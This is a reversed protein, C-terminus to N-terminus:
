KQIENRLIEIENESLHKLRKKKIATKLCEENKCLYISRGFQKNNPAIIIEGTKHEKLIRILENRDIIKGCACCKRLVISPVKTTGEMSNLNKDSNNNSLKMKMIKKLWM